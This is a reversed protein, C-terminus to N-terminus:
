KTRKFLLFQSAIAISSYTGIGIGVMMALVFNQISAGGFLYVVLLVFLTTLSTNLSRVITENLSVNIAEEMTKFSHTLLNERIRDYIVITDNVSYGLVILIATIFATNIEAGKFYGMLAFFGLLILVDHFLALLAGLGYRWSEGKKAIKSLKRFAWAIYLIIAILALAITWQVKQTLEKGIVPGISEFRVEEPDDLVALIEQHTKEDVDKFRILYGKTGTAQIKVKGIEFGSLREQIEDSSLTVEIYEIEMMSGGTFDIGPKLGFILLSLISIGLLVGSIIFFTKRHSVFDFM